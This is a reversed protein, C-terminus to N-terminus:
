HKIIIKLLKLNMNIFIKFDLWTSESNLNLDDIIKIIGRTKYDKRKIWDTNIFIDIFIKRIAVLFQESNIATKLITILRVIFHNM